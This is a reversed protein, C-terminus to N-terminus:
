GPAPSDPDPEAAQTYRDLVLERIRARSRDAGDGSREVEAVREALEDDSISETIWRSYDGARLHHLWTEDDVGDGIQLFMALNHARLNLRDDPGRFYFSTDRSMTGVAYKRRHRRREAAPPALEVREVRDAGSRWLAVQGTVPAPADVAAAGTHRAVAAVVPGPETGVVVATDVGALVDDEVAEPHVTVLMVAGLEDLLPATRTDTGAPLLHHAEDVVLWHPRGTRAAHAAIQPLLETCFGPRDPLPVALLNVVVSHDPRDLLGVVEEVSPASGADGLVASSPGIGDEYDGEPDILCVQYAAEVLRELLASTVTSKGSGSPGAVLMRVGYPPLRVPEGGDARSGLLVHHRAPGDGLDGLDSDVVRGVIEEVGAGRAGDTVVDCREKLAPLANAVAVSCECADLFAHDNEADGVGLVNHASLGLEELAAALGTAKNVGSPLVMVAGKNFIIQRELGLDRIADLVTRDHPQRTAVIVAGVGLPEVREARLRDVLEAPPPEALPVKARSAPRYLLGGNEAVVRDFLDLRSFVRSLDDLERGTVLLLRRGSEAARELAAVTSPAVEGDKALTGDYDFALARYRV